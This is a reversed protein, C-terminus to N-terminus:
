SLVNANDKVQTQRSVPKGVQERKEQIYIRPRLVFQVLNAICVTVLLSMYSTQVSDKDLGESMPDLVFICVLPMLVLVFNFAFWVLNKQAYVIFDTIMKNM